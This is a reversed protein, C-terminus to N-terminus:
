RVMDFITQNKREAVGNQQPSYLATLFRRIGQDECYKMFTTLTYKDGKDSRVFKIHRGTAKEVIVKFKKFM